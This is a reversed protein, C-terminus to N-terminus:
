RGYFLTRKWEATEEAVLKVNDILTKSQYMAGTHSFRVGIIEGLNPHSGDTTVSVTGQESMDNTDTQASASAIVNTGALIQATYQNSPDPVGTTSFANGARFTLTYTVGPQLRDSINTTQVGSGIWIAVVQSGYPTTFLNTSSNWIQTYDHERDWGVPDVKEADVVVPSEFSEEVIVVTGAHIPLGTLVLLLVPAAACRALPKCLSMVMMREDPLTLDTKV